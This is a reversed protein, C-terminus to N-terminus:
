RVVQWLRLAQVALDRATRVPVGGVHFPDESAAEGGLALGKTVVRADGELWLRLEAAGWRVGSHRQLLGTLLARWATDAVAQRDFEWSIIDHRIRDDAIGHLPHVGLVGEAVIMGLSWWDAAPDLPARLLVEPASQRVTYRGLTQPAPQQLALLAGDFDALLVRPAGGAEPVLLVNAPKLDGHLVWPGGDRREHLLALTECLARVVEHGIANWTGRELAQQLDHCGSGYWPTLAWGLAGAVGTELPLVLRERAQPLRELHRLLAPSALTHPAACKLVKELGDRRDQVRWVGARTASAPMLEALPRFRALLEPPMM